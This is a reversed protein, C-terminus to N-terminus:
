TVPTPHVAVRADSRRRPRVGLVLERRPGDARARTAAVLEDTAGSTRRAAARSASSADGEDAPRGRRRLQRRRLVHEARPARLGEAGSPRHRWPAGLLPRVDHQQRRREHARRRDRAAGRAGRSGSCVSRWSTTDGRAHPPLRRLRARGGDITTLRSSRTSAACGSRSRATRARSSLAAASRRRRVRGRARARADGRQGGDFTSASPARRPRHRARRLVERSSGSRCRAAAPGARQRASSRGRGACSRARDPDGDIASRRKPRRAGPQGAGAVVYLGDAFEYTPVSLPAAATRARTSPSSAPTATASARAAALIRMLGVVLQPAALARRASPSGSSRPGSRARSIAHYLDPHITSWRPRRPRHDRAAAADSRLAARRRGCALLTLALTMLVLSTKVPSLEELVWDCWRLSTSAPEIGLRLLFCHFWDHGTRTNTPEIAECSRWGRRRTRASSSSRRTSSEVDHARRRLAEPLLANPAPSSPRSGASRAGRARPETLKYLESTRAADRGTVGPPQARARRSVLRPLVAYLQTRAPAWVHAINREVLKLLDYGSREGEIALLALM